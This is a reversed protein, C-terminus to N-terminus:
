EKRQYECLTEIKEIEASIQQFQLKTQKHCARVQSLESGRQQLVSSM